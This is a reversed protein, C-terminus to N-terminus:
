IVPNYTFYGECIYDLINDSNDLEDFILGQFHIKKNGQEVYYQTDSKINNSVHIKLIYLCMVLRHRVTAHQILETIGETFMSRHSLM